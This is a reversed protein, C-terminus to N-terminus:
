KDSPSYAAGELGSFFNPSAIANWTNPSTKGIDVWGGTDGAVFKKENKSFGGSVPDGVAFVNQPIPGLTNFPAGSAALPLHYQLITRSMQDIVNLTKGGGSVYVGGFFGYTGIPEVITFKPNKTPSTVEGLGFGYNNNADYGSFTFWLNDSGDVDMFGVGCIPSCSPTLTILEPAASPNNKPWWEFGGGLTDTCTAACSQLDFLNLSAFTNGSSDIGSDWLLASFSTCSKVNIPCSPLYTSELAGTNSYEELAGSTTSPSTLECGVWVNQTHDVKLAVPSYCSHTSLDVATVTKKGNGTQGVLYNFDTNAAWMGVQAGAHYALKPRPGNVAQLQRKLVAAPVPAPLKGALQLALLRSPSSGSKMLAAQSTVAQSQPMAQPGPVSPQSTTAAGTCGSIAAVVILSAGANFLRRFPRV